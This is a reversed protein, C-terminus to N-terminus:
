RLTRPDFGRRSQSAVMLPMTPWVTSSERAAAPMSAITPVTVMKIGAQHAAAKATDLTKGGGIGVAIDAGHDTAIQAVRAAEAKTSDGAFIVDVAEIGAAALSDLVAQGVIGKITADWLLLPKSGLAKLYDGLQNIINPGQVYKRPAILVKNM